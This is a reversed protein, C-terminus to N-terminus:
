RSSRSRTFAAPVPLIRATRCDLLVARVVARTIPNTVLITEGIMGPRRVTGPVGVKAAGAEAVLTVPDGSAVDPIRHVDAARIPEGAPLDRAARVRVGDAPAFLARPEKDFTRSEQAFDSARIEEGKAIARSAVAVSRETSVIISALGRSLRRGDAVCSVPIARPGARGPDEPLEVELTWCEGEDALLKPLVRITLESGAPGHEEWARHLADRVASEEVAPRALVKAPLATAAFGALVIAHVPVARAACVNGRLRRFMARM